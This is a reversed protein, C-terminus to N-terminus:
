KTSGFGALKGQFNTLARAMRDSMGASERSIRDALNTLENIEVDVQRSNAEFTARDADTMLVNEEAVPRLNDAKVRITAAKAVTAVAAKGISGIDAPIGAKLESMIRKGETQLRAIESRTAADTDKYAAEVDLPNVRPGGAEALDVETSNLIDDGILGLDVNAATLQSADFANVDGEVTDVRDVIGAWSAELEEQMAQLDKVETHLTQKVGVSTLPSFVEGVQACSGFPIAVAGVLLLLSSKM